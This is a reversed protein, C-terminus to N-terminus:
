TITLTGGDEITLVVGTDIDIPGGATASRGSSVITNQSVNSSYEVFVTRVIGSNIAAVTLSPSQNLVTINNAVINAAVIDRVTINNNTVNGNETVRDLTTDFRLDRFNEDMEEYTLSSGKIIRRTITM